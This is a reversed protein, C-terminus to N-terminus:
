KDGQESAQRKQQNNKHIKYGAVAAVTAGFIGGSMGGIATEAAVGAAVGAGAALAADKKAQDQGDSKKKLWTKAQNYKKKAYLKSKETLESFQVDDEGAGSGFKVTKLKESTNKTNKFNIFDKNLKAESQKTKSQFSKVSKVSAQNSNLAAFSGIQM